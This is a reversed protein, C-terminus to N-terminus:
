ATAILLGVTAEAQPGELWCCVLWCVLLGFWGVFWGVICGLRCGVRGQLVAQKLLVLMKIWHEKRKQDDDMALSPLSKWLKWVKLCLSHGEARPVLSRRPGGYRVTEPAFPSWSHCAISGLEPSSRQRKLLRWAKPAHLNILLRCVAQSFDGYRVEWRTPTAPVTFVLSRMLQRYEEM